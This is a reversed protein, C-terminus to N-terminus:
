RWYFRRKLSFLTREVGSHGGLVTDHILKIAIQQLEKPVVIVEEDQRLEAKNDRIKIFLAGSNDLFYDQLNHVNPCLRQKNVDSPDKLYRVIHKTSEDKGQEAILSELTWAQQFEPEDEEEAQLSLLRKLVEDQKPPNNKPFLGLLSVNMNHCTSVILEAKEEANEDIELPAPNRSLADAVKNCSGPYHHIDLNFGQLALAWRTLRASKYTAKDFLWSLAKNDSLVIVKQGWILPRFKKLDLISLCELDMTDRKLSLEGKRLQRSFYTVAHLKGAYKQALTIGLGVDCADTLIYWPRTFDPSRLIPRSLLHDKLTQFAEQQPKGWHFAVDDKTLETLAKAKQAYQHVFKRFFGTLCM